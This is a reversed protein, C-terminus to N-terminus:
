DDMQLWQLKNLMEFAGPDDSTYDLYKLALHQRGERKCVERFADLEPAHTIWFVNEAGDVNEVFAVAGRKKGRTVRKGASESEGVTRESGVLVVEELMPFEKLLVEAISAGSRLNRPLLQVDFDIALRRVGRKDDEPVRGLFAKFNPLDEDIWLIDQKFDFFVKGDGRAKEEKDEAFALKWRKLAMERSLRCAHLSAPICCPSTYQWEWKQWGADNTKVVQGGNSTITEPDDSPQLDTWFGDRLEVVRSPIASIAFAWILQKLETVLFPFPQFTNPSM